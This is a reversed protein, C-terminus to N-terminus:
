EVPISTLAQCLHVSFQVISTCCSHVGGEIRGQQPITQALTICSEKILSKKVINSASPDVRDLKSYFIQSCCCLSDYKLNRYLIYMYSIEMPTSILNVCKIQHLLQTGMVLQM